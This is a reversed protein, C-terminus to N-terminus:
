SGGIKLDGTPQNIIIQDRGYNANNQQSQSQNQINVIQQALDKLSAEFDEDEVFEGALVATVKEIAGVDAGKAKEIAALNEETKKRGSFRTVIADWLREVLKEASKGAAGEAFKQAALGVILATTIPEAM